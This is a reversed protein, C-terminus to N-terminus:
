PLVVRVEVPRARGDSLPPVVIDVDKDSGTIRVTHRGAELPPLHVISAGDATFRAPWLKDALPGAPRVVTATANLKPKGDRGVVTLLSAVGPEGVDLTMPGPPAATGGVTLRQAASLWIDDMAAQLRYTGPTLGALEFSGDAEASVDQSFLANLKGRGEFAARVRFRNNRRAIGKGGVTVIGRARVAPPLVAKLEPGGPDSLPVVAAGYAGPLWAVLVPEKPSGPPEPSPEGFSYGGGAFHLRGRDDTRGRGLARWIEPVFVVVEAGGAPSKGDPLLVRGRAARGVTAERRAEGVGILATVLRGDVKVPKPDAPAKIEVSTVKDGRVVVEQTACVVWDRGKNCSLELRVKGVAFPGAVFEGADQNFHQGSEGAGWRILYDSTSRGAAPRLVGRVYGVPEARLAARAETDNGVPVSKMFVRFRGVLERDAPLPTDAPGLDPLVLGPLSAQVEYTGAQLGVFRVEGKEDTSGAFAPEGRFRDPLLVFGRAPKGDAGELRVTLSGPERRRAALVVPPAKALLPSVAVVGAAESYPALHTSHSQAPSGRYKFTLAWLGPGDAALEGTGNEGLKLGSAWGGGRIPSWVYDVNGSLALGDPRLVRVRAVNPQPYAGLRYRRTEGARVAIGQCVAYAGKARHGFDERVRQVAEVGGAAAVARYTGPALDRFRAVGAADTTRVPYLLGAVAAREPERASGVYHRNTLHPGRESILQVAANALPKGARVVTVELAGGRAPLNVDWAGDREKGGEGAPALLPLAVPPHGVKHVLVHGSLLSLGSRGKIKWRGRGDSRTARITEYMRIGGDYEALAYVDAGEVAKGAADRVTGSAWVGEEEKPGAAQPAPAAPAPSTAEAIWENKGFVVKTVRQGPAVRVFAELVCPREECRPRLWYGGAMLGKVEFHGAADFGVRREERGWGGIVQVYTKTRRLEKPLVGEVSAFPVLPPLPPLAKTGEELEFTGTAGYGMGRATVRVRTVGVPWRFRAVGKADTRARVEAQREFPDFREEARFVVDARAVPRGDPGRVLLEVPATPPAAKDQGPAPTPSPALFFLATWIAVILARRMPLEM